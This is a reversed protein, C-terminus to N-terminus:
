YVWRSGAKRREAIFDEMSASQLNKVAKGNSSVPTIPAPAKSTKPKAVQSVKEEIKGLEAVQRAFSLKGIREAEEPKSTLYAVVKAGLEPAERLAMAMPESIPLEDFVDQDFGPLKSAMEVVKRNADMVRQAASMQQSQKGQAERQDLKWDTLKDIYDEESAFHERRPKDDVPQQVHQVAQPQLKELAKLLRREAKNDSQASRKRLIEDVEAQTYSKEAPQSEAEAEETTQSGEPQATQEPATVQETVEDSVPTDQGTPQEGSM